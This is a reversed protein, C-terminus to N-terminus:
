EHKLDDENNVINGLFMANAQIHGIILEGSEEDITKGEQLDAIHRLLSDIIKSVPMGKKWNSRAYKKAGFMLVRACPVLCNLDIYSLEPKGTNKRDAFERDTMLKVGNIILM